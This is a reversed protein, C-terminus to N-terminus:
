TPGAITVNKICTIHLYYNSHSSLIAWINAINSPFHKRELVSSTIPIKLDNVHTQIEMNKTSVIFVNSTKNLKNQGVCLVHIM